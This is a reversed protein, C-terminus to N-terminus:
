SLQLLPLQGGENVLIKKIDLIIDYTKGWGELSIKGKEGLVM